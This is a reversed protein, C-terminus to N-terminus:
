NHKMRTFLYHFQKDYNFYNNKLKEIEYKGRIWWTKYNYKCKRQVDLNATTTFDGYTCTVQGQDAPRCKTVTLEHKKGDAKVSCKPSSEVPKGKVTWKVDVNPVSFECEFIAEEPETVKLDKLPM